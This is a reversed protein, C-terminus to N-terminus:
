GVLVGRGGCCGKGVEAAVAVCGVPAAGEGAMEEGEGGSVFGGWGGFLGVWVGCGGKGEGGKRGCRADERVVDDKCQLVHAGQHRRRAAGPAHPARHLPPLRVPRNAHRHRSNASPHRPIPPPPKKINPILRAPLFLPKQIRLTALLPFPPPPTLPKPLPNHSSSSLTRRPTRTQTGHPRQRRKGRHPRAVAVRESLPSCIM